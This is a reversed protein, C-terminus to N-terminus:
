WLVAPTGGGVLGAYISCVSGALWGAGAGCVGPTGTLQSCTETQADWMFGCIPTPSGWACGSRVGMPGAQRCACPSEFCEPGQVMLIPWRLGLADSMTCGFSPLHPRPASGRMEVVRPGAAVRWAGGLWGPYAGGCTGASCAPLPCPPVSMLCRRRCPTHPSTSPRLPCTARSPPHIAGTHVADRHAAMGGCCWLASRVSTPCTPPAASPHPRRGHLSPHPLPAPPSSPNPLTARSPLSHRAASEGPRM